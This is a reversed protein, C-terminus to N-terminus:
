KVKERESLMRCQCGANGDYNGLYLLCCCCFSIMVMAQWLDKNCRVSGGMIRVLMVRIQEEGEDSSVGVREYSESMQM